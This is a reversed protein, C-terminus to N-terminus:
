RNCISSIKANTLNVIEKGSTLVVSKPHGAAVYCESLDHLRTDIIIITESPLAFPSVGGITFGTRQKVKDAKLIEINNTQLIKSLVSLDVKEDGCIVAVITATESEFVISKGIQYLEVGLSQAADKATATSDPLTIVEARSNKSCLFDQVRSAGESLFHNM